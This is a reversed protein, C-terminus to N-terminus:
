LLRGDHFKAIELSSFPTPDETSSLSSSPTPDETPHQFIQFSRESCGDTTFNQSKPCRWLEDASSDCRNSCGSLRADRRPEFRVTPRQGANM